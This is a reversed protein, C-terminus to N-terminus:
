AAKFAKALLPDMIAEYGNLRAVVSKRGDLFTFNGVMKREDFSQVELVASVGDVPFRDSYQRYSAAYSPLSVKGLHEKCWVIAMQFASDLVLPDAIWRSRLPVSMWDAPPPAASLRASIGEESIRIIDQIGHLDQGHFLIDRYIEDMSHPFECRKFHGNENFVPPPPMRDTLIATASAHLKQLGPAGANRIEVKVEYQDGTRRAKGAMMHVTQNGKELTIGSFVRLGDIGHLILGPNAHLAGHALWETIIALPVVPRGDLYHSQLVPYANVDIELNAMLHLADEARPEQRKKPIQGSASPLGSGIVVEVPGDGPQSMEAIMAKAGAIVPILGIGSHIFNRKLDSTVMGGDWPGWNISVVKCVPRLCAQQRAMKNLVENAMAYDVQGQNGMRASVSSFLVIYKLGDNETAALCHTLGSVKTDYVREFQEPRKDAIRRDQLVGAGHILGAIPGMSERIHDITEKVRQANRVDVQFYRAVAGKAALEHMTNQVHRNAMWKKYSAEITKPLVSQGNFENILIAKKLQGPDSLANLWEPEAVPAPSRGLLAMKCNAVAALEKVAAATVGRAGGTIIVVEKQDLAIPQQLSAKAPILSLGVRRDRALGIEIHKQSGIIPIEQVIARAVAHGDTWTPDIDLARCSVGSWEMAATKALGAMAGQVPAQVPGDNFGFAGDLFSVTMFFACDEKGAAGLSAAGAKAWQFARMPNLPAMLILGSVDCERELDEPSALIRCHAGAGNLVDVLLDALETEGGVIGIRHRAIRAPDTQDPAPLSVVQVIQREVTQEESTRVLHLKPSGAPDTEDSAAARQGSCLYDCIQGLTKLSGMMDPTVKPLHPMKEELASLIEVRKISDIGLDSEIDMQMGLMEAPYGTLEAVIDVLAGAVADNGAARGAPEVASSAAATTSPAPLEAAASLYDCIQGLTKLSGMMDPTVKPLHPMKEELASLIEVRKISDIGLDSEIDMQMGLMEAPYGTLEAVIDVLAGAVADNGAARGAPEVASSAAATTSPAPPEAAASLYDCIQGLTKLSGMMDPTVKPLHPMKEELASLIEVRKISDIGLDSEIDMQMGLMEAPYGTLEAVIDVLAGAVADNGAARGAPEVASSAAATTSPAPPEAAASLERSPNQSPPINRFGRSFHEASTVSPMQVTGQGMAATALQQTSQIMQQLAKSAQAQTDLFKEHAKVTQAQLAQMSALGQQVASFANIISRSAPDKMRHPATEPQPNNKDQGPRLGTTDAASVGPLGTKGATLPQVQIDDSRHSPHVAPAPRDSTASAKVRRYNTGSLPISMRKERIAPMPKEWSDLDVDYGLAALKGLVAALDAVGSRKGCSQDMAMINLDPKDLISRVLQSLISKPGIEVFTRVGAAYLSQINSLFDVPRALQRSLTERIEEKGTPYPNGLTNSMVSVPSPKFDVQEVRRAFPAQAHAVLHSHFAAAVPLRVTQWGRDRCIAEAATVRGSTGSLVGQDPSNRNALVVDSQLSEVLSEIQQLPAKVALMSGADDAARGAEAMLRGREQSLRWLDEQSIWGAAYLAVLEGYSHGCVAAPYVGFRNLARLMAASVAGIAPQAIDTRCLQNHLDDPMGGLRPYLYEELPKALSLTNSANQFVSLSEPFCCILDRGMGVYQSGQGPFLFAIDGQVPGNSLFVPGELGYQGGSLRDEAIKCTKAASEFGEALDLVMVLRHAETRKFQDRSLRALKGIKYRTPEGLAERGWHKVKTHLGMRTSDSFAAIEITGDWSAETKAEM